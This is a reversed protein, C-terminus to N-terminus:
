AGDLPLVSRLIRGAAQLTAARHDASGTGQGHAFFLERYRAGYDTLGTFLIQTRYGARRAGEIDSWGDGVHVANQPVTGIAKLATLFIEPNPKTWPLEDSFVYSEVFPDFGMRRLIPRFYRGPEGVTNSIVALRYGDTRLGKLFEIAGPAMQFPMSEVERHLATLYDRPDAVRETREAAIRFQEGPTITRGDVSADVAERYVDEFARRLSSFTLTRGEPRITSKSLLGAAIEAQGRIYREEAEPALYILTHWLDVTVGVM